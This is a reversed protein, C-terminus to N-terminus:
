GKLTQAIGAISMVVKDCRKALAQNLWGLEDAFRRTLPDMGIIGLGVENSVIVVEGPYRVLSTLFGDRERNFVDDGAHLLNSVWLSMCDILLNPVPNMLAKRRLVSGLALPEEELWWQSPRQLRHLRVREQMEVDGITATAVYVVPGDKEQALKEALASKGSRIGGLVLTATM